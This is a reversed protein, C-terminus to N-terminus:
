AARYEKDGLNAKLYGSLITGVVLTATPQDVSDKACLGFNHATNVCVSRLFQRFRFEAMVQKYSPVIDM